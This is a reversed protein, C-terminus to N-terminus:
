IVCNCVEGLSVARLVYGAFTRHGFWRGEDLPKHQLFDGAARCFGSCCSSRPLKMTQCYTSATVALQALPPLPM